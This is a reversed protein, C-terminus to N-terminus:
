YDHKLTEDLTSMARQCAEGDPSQRWERVVERAAEAIRDDATEDQQYRRKLAQLQGIMHDFDDHLDPTGLHDELKAELIWSAFLATLVAAVLVGNVILFGALIRGEIEVPSIDGYGVTAATVIAWYLGDPISTKAELLSYLIGCVLVLVVSYGGVWLVPREGISRRIKDLRV